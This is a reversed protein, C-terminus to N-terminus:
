DMKLQYDLNVRKKKKFYKEKSYGTQEFCNTPFVIREGNCIRSVKDSIQQDHMYLNIKLTEIRSKKNLLLLM